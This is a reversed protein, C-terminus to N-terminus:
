DGCILLRRLSDYSPQPATKRPQFVWYSGLADRWIVVEVGGGRWSVCWLTFRIQSYLPGTWIWWGGRECVCLCRVKIVNMTLNLWLNYHLSSLLHYKQLLFKMSFKVPATMIVDDHKWHNKFRGKEQWWNDDNTTVGGGGGGGQWWRLWLVKNFIKKSRM